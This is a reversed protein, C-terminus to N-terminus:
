IKMSNEDDKWFFILTVDWFIFSVVGWKCLSAGYKDVFKHKFHTLLEFPNSNFVKKWLM